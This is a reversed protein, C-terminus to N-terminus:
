RGENFKLSLSAYQADEDVYSHSESPMDELKGYVAFNYPEVPDPIVLVKLTDRVYKLMRRMRAFNENGKTDLKNFNVTLTKRLARNNAINYFGALEIEDKYNEWDLNFDAILNEKQDFILAAGGLFRGIKIFGDVNVPDSITVRWHRYSVLPLEPAVWILNTELPDNPMEMTGYIPVISWEEDDAPASDSGGGYAQITVYASSSLNHDLLAATDISITNNEGADFQFWTEVTDDSQWYKEIIDSKLNLVGKDTSKESEATFNNLAQGDSAIQWLFRAQTTNYIPFRMGFPLFLRGLAQNTQMYPLRLTSLLKHYNMVHIGAGITRATYAYITWASEAWAGAVFNSQDGVGGIIDGAEMNYMQLSRNGKYDSLYPHADLIGCRWWHQLDDYYTVGGLDLPTGANYIETVEAGSLVRDWVAVESVNGNFYSAPVWASQGLLTEEINPTLAESPVGGGVNVGNFYMASILGANVVLAIHIWGADNVGTDCQIREQGNGEYQLSQVYARCLYNGGGNASLDIKVGRGYSSGSDYQRFDVVGQFSAISTKAWLSISFSNDNKFDFVENPNKAYENVGDFIVYNNVAM